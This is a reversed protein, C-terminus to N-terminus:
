AESTYSYETGRLDPLLDFLDQVRSLTHVLVGLGYDTVTTAVDPYGQLDCEEQEKVPGIGEGM